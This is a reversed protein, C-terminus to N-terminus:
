AGGGIQSRGSGVKYGPGLTWLPRSGQGRIAQSQHQGGRRAAPVSALPVPAEEALAPDPFLADPLLLPAM